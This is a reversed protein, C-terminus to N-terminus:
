IKQLEGNMIVVRGFARSLLIVRVTQSLRTKNPPFKLIFHFHLCLYNNNNDFTPMRLKLGCLIGFHPLIHYKYYTSMTVFRKGGNFM